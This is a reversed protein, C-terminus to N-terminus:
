IRIPQKHSVCFLLLHNSLCRSCAFLLCRCYRELVQGSFTNLVFKVGLEELTPKSEPEGQAEPEKEGEDDSSPTNPRLVEEPLPEGKRVTIQVVIHVDKEMQIQEAPEGDDAM